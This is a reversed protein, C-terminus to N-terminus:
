SGYILSFILYKDKPTQAIESLIIKKLELWKGRFEMLENKKCNLLIGYLLCVM